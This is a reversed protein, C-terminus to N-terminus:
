RAFRQLLGFHSSTLADALTACPHRRQLFRPLSVRWNTDRVNDPKRQNSGCSGGRECTCPRLM